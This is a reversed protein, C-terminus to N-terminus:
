HTASVNALVQLIRDHDFKAAIAGAPLNGTLSIGKDTFSPGFADVADRAVETADQSVPVVHLENPSTM